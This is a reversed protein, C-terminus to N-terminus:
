LAGRQETRGGRVAAMLPASPGQPKRRRRTWSFSHLVHLTVSHWVSFPSQKDNVKFGPGRSGQYVTAPPTAVTLGQRTHLPWLKTVTAALRVHGGNAEPRSPACNLPGPLPAHFGRCLAHIPGRRSRGAAPNEASTPGRGAGRLTNDPQRGTTHVTAMLLAAKQTQPHNLMRGRSRACRLPDLVSQFPLCLDGTADGCSFCTTRSPSWTCTRQLGNEAKVDLTPNAQTETTHCRKVRIIVQGDGLAIEHTPLPPGLRWCHKFYSRSPLCAPSSRPRSHGSEQDAM